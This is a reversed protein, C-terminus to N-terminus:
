FYDPLGNGLENGSAEIAGPDIVVTALSDVRFGYGDNDKATAVSGDVNDFEVNASIYYGNLKNKKALNQGSFVIDISSSSSVVQFGNMDNDMAENDIIDVANIDEIYFGDRDNKKAVNSQLRFIDWKVLDVGNQGNAEAINCTFDGYIIDNMAFGDATNKKATNSKVIHAGGMTLYMGGYDCGEVYNYYVFNNLTSVFYLGYGDNSSKITNREIRNYNGYQSKIGNNSNEITNKSIHNYESVYMNIADYKINTIRNDSVVNFSSFDDDFRIGYSGNDITNGIIHNYSSGSLKIADNGINTIINDVIRAGGSTDTSVLIDKSVHIGTDAVSDVTVDHIYSNNSSAAIKIGVSINTIVLDHVEVLNSGSLYIGTFCNNIISEAGNGFVTVHNSDVIYICAENFGYTSSCGITHGNMDVRMGHGGNIYLPFSVDNCDCILDSVLRVDRGGTTSVLDVGCFTDDIEVFGCDDHGTSGGDKDSKGDKSGKLHRPSTTNKRSTTRTATSASGKERRHQRPRQRTPQQDVVEYDDVVEAGAASAAMLSSSLFFLPLSSLVASVFKMTRKIKSIENRQNKALM